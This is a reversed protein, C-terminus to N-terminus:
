FDEAPLINVKFGLEEIAAILAANQRKIREDRPDRETMNHPSQLSAHRTSSGSFELEVVKQPASFVLAGPACLGMM